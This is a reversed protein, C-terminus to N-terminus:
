PCSQVREFPYPGYGQVVEGCHLVQLLSVLGRILSPSPLSPPPLLFLLLQGPKQLHCTLQANLFFFSFFFFFAIALPSPPPLLPVTTTPSSKPSRVPFLSCPVPAPAHPPSCSHIGEDVVVKKAAKAHRTADRGKHHTTPHGRVETGVRGGARMTWTQKNSPM